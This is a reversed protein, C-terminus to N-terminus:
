WATWGGDVPLTAGTVLAAADSALYVVAAAVEEAKGLRGLPIRRMAEAAIEKDAFMRDVLPGEIFTPALANVTIGHPAWEVALVKTLQVVGGKAACYAARKYFGVLGMQSAINIVRGRGGRIMHPAAAQSCFFLAKLNIGLVADWAAETVELAPQQINTGANNVLIDLGGLADAAANVVRHCDAASVLDGEVPVASGGRGSREAAARAAELSGALRGADRGHLAVRAGLEALAAAIARGIGGSAGTVLARRGALSAEIAVGM